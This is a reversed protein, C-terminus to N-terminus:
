EDEGLQRRVEGMLAEAQARNPASPARDLYLQLHQAAERPRNAMKYSAGADFLLPPSPARRQAEAFSAAANAYDGRQYLESGTQVLKAVEAATGAPAPLLAPPGSSPRPQPPAM